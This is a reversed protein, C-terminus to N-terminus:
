VHARGIKVVVVPLSCEVMSAALLRELGGTSEMVILAPMEAKLYNIVQTIGKTDNSFSKIEKRDSTAVDLTAKSVDIGIYIKDM